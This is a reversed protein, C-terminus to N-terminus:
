ATTGGLLILLALYAGCFAALLLLWAVAIM